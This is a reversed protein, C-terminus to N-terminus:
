KNLRSWSGFWNKEKAGLWKHEISVIAKHIEYQCLVTDHHYKCTKGQPDNKYLGKLIPLAKKSRIQGLTWIAVDSRDHPTHATDSLYAILADEATGSYQQKAISIREKVGHGIWIRMALIFCLFLIAFGIATGIFTRKIYEFKNARSILITILSLVPTLVVLLTYALVGYEKPHPYNTAISWSAFGIIAINLILAVIKMFPYISSLNDVKNQEESSKSKFNLILWSHNVRSGFILVINLIPVLLLLFTFIIYVPEKSIGEFLLLLCTIGLLMINCIITVIKM